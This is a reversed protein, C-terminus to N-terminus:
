FMMRLVALVFASFFAVVSWRLAHKVRPSRLPKRIFVPLVATTIGYFFLAASLVLLLIMLVLLGSIEQLGLVSSIGETYSLGNTQGQNDQGPNLIVEVKRTM